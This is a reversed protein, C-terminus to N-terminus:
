DQGAEIARDGTPPPALAETCVPYRGANEELGAAQCLHHYVQVSKLTEAGPGEPGVHVLLGHQSEAEPHFGHMAAPATRTSFFSPHIVVGENALWIAVGWQPSACHYAAREEDPLWRGDTRQQLSDRIRKLCAADRGWVRAMTADLFYAGEGTHVRNPGLELRTTAVTNAMGHDSLIVSIGRPYRRSFESVLTECWKDLRMLYARHPESGVGHVHTLHDLETLLVCLRSEERMLRSAETAARADRSQGRAGSGRAVILGARSFLTSHPFQQDYPAAGSPRFGALLEFPISRPHTSFRSMLRRVGRDALSGERLVAGLARLALRWRRFPSGAPDYQWEGFFGVEDPYCGSFLEAQINVSYGMGPIVRHVSGAGRLFPCDSLRVFPLSDIFIVLIDRM